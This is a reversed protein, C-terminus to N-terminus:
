AVFYNGWVTFARTFFNRNLLNTKPLKYEIPKSEQLNKNADKIATKVIQDQNELEAIRNELISLYNNLDNLNKIEPRAM